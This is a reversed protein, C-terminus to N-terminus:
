FGSNKFKEENTYATGGKGNRGAGNGTGSPKDYGPPRCRSNAFRGGGGGPMQGSKRKIEKAAYEDFEEDTAGSRVSVDNAGAKVKRSESFHGFGVVDDDSGRYLKVKIPQNPLLVKDIIGYAAAEPATLYFDRKMDENVKVVSQRTIMALETIVKANDKMLEQVALAVDVAQGEIADEFGTKAMLFRANPFAYRNGKSGLACLAAGMGVTLGMNITIIPCKLRKIVDFVALAPKMISGPVNFYLTIPETESQGQLWILSAILQNCAEEDLFRAVFLTRSRGLVNYIDMWMYDKSAKDPYYPVLPVQGGAM